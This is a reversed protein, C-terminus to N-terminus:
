QALHQRALTGAALLAVASVILYAASAEHGCGALAAAFGFCFIGGFTLFSAFM